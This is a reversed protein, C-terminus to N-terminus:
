ANAGRYQDEIADMTTADYWETDGGSCAGGRGAKPFLVFHTSEADGEYDWSAYYIVLEQAALDALDSFASRIESRMDSPTICELSSDKNLEIADVFSGTIQNATLNTM